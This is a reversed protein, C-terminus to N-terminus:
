DRPSRSIPVALLGAARDAYSAAEPLVAAIEDTTFVQSAALRNLMGMLFTDNM